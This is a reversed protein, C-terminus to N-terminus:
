HTHNNSYFCDSKWTNPNDRVYKSIKVYDRHDRIVHDHFSRQWIPIGIRRSVWRKMQGIAISITALTTPSSLMRGGDNPIYLILHIHNPMIVYELLHIHPYVVPIYNIAEDVYKGFLTLRVSNQPLISDEGVVCISENSWFLNTKDKTCITIFYMGNSSYDFNKLRNRKRIPLNNKMRNM